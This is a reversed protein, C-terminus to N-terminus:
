FLVKGVSSCTDAGCNAHLYYDVSQAQPTGTLLWLGQSNNLHRVFTAAYVDASCTPRPHMM